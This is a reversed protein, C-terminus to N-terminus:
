SHRRAFFHLFLGLSLFELGLLGLALFSEFSSVLLLYLVCHGLVFALILFIFSLVWLVLGESRRRLLVDAGRTDIRM